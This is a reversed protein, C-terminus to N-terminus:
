GRLSERQELKERAAQKLDRGAALNSGWPM